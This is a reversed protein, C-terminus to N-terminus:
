SQHDRPLVSTPATSRPPASIHRAAVAEARRARRASRELIRVAGFASGSRHRMRRTAMLALRRAHLANVELTCSRWGSRPRRTVTREYDLKQDLPVRRYNLGWFFFLAARRRLTTLSVVSSVLARVLGTARVRRWFGLALAALLAAVDLLAVPFPNSIVSSPRCQPYLGRSYWAEVLRRPLPVAAAM